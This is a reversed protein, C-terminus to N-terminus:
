NRLYTYVASSRWRGLKRITEVSVGLDTLDGARGSRFAHSCYLSADLNNLSLLKRLKNRFHLPTVPSCDKFVFFQENDTAYSRRQSVYRQLLTFPCYKDCSKGNIVSGKIKIIQPKNGRGHTKSTHLVFMMKKKNTGVHVDTAKVVHPSATLEGIRFLRYYATSFLAKYLDVLYPQPSDFTREMANLLLHLVSKTIPLKTQIVDNQLKCAQTLATLLANDLKLKIGVYGLVAKIASIYSRITNSKRRTHVLHGVYLTLRTEWNNPKKDLKLFFQNFNKWIMYYNNKTSQRHRNNKLNEIVARLEDTSITSATSSNDRYTRRGTIM